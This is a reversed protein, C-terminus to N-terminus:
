VNYARNEGMLRPLLQLAVIQEGHVRLIAAITLTTRYYLEHLESLTQLEGIEEIEESIGNRLIEYSLEVRM